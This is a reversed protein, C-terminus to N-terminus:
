GENKKWHTLENPLRHWNKPAKFVRPYNYSEDYQKATLDIGVNGVLAIIHDSFGSRSCDHNYMKTNYVDIMRIQTLKCDLADLCFMLSAQRCSGLANKQHNYEPFDKVFQVILKKLKKPLKKPLKVKCADEL